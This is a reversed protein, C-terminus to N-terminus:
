PEMDTLFVFAVLTLFVSAFNMIDLLWVFFYYYYFDTLM